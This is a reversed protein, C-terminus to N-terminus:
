GGSKSKSKKAPPAYDALGAKVLREAQRPKLIFVEGPTATVSRGALVTSFEKTVIIKKM